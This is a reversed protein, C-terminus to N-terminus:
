SSSTRSAAALPEIVKRTLATALGPKLRGRPNLVIHTIGAAIFPRLEEVAPGPDAADVHWQLSRTIQVPDRGVARCHEDLVGSLRAFEAPTDGNFNWRDAHRAVVRLTLTEGTGGIVIPPHPKQVPKPECRAAVLTYYRGAFDTETNTWLAKLIQCAEGLARIRRAATGLPIGYMAHEGEHWGAGIGLELRGNSIIDVTAAINALVAPHRYTNSTVMLGVRARTTLAALGALLSWGELCPGTPDPGLPVFHDFAWLHEVLPIEDAEQWIRRLDDWTGRHPGTKIGFSLRGNSTM